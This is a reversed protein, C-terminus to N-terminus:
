SQEQVAKVQATKGAEPKMTRGKSDLGLAKEIEETAKLCAGGSFGEAEVTVAGDPKALIKITRM